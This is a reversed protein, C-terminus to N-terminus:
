TVRQVRNAAVLARARAAGPAFVEIQEGVGPFAVYVNSPRSRAFFAVGGDRLPIRVTAISRSALKTAALGNPFPYTAVTLQPTRSGVPVGAPLYRVFTRGDPTRTLELTTGPIPGLWYIPRGLRPALTSLGSRSIAVATTGAAALRAAGSGSVLRVDGGLVLRRVVAASPDYIEIQVSSGPFALYVNTPRPKSYFAVAGKGVTLRIAGSAHAAGRTIAFANPLPYTAVTLVPTPSGAPVGRPLYRVYTRLDSTETFEYTVGRRPGAWYIPQGLAAGLALLNRASVETTNATRGGPTSSDKRVGFWVAFGTFAAVAVVLGIRVWPRGLVTV